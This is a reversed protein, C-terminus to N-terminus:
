HQATSSTALSREASQISTTVACAHDRDDSHQGDVEKALERGVKPLERVRSREVIWPANTLIGAPKLHLSGGTCQDVRILRVGDLKM